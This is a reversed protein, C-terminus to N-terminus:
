NEQMKNGYKEMMEFFLIYAKINKYVRIVLDKTNKDLKEIIEEQEKSLEM